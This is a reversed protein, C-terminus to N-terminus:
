VTKEKLKRLLIINILAVIILLPIKIWWYAFKETWAETTKSVYFFNRRFAIVNIIGDYLIFFSVGMFISIMVLNWSFGFVLTVFVGSLFLGVRELWQFQHWLKSYKIVNLIRYSEGYGTIICIVFFFLLAFILKVLM